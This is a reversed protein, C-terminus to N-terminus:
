NNEVANDFLEVLERRADELCGSYHKELISLIGIVPDCDIQFTRVEKNITVTFEATISEYVNKLINCKADNAANAGAKALEARHLIKEIEDNNFIKSNELM